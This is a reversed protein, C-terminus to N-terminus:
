LLRAKLRRYVATRGFPCITLVLRRALFDAAPKSVVFSKMPASPVKPIMVSPMNHRPGTTDWKTSGSVATVRLNAGNKGVLTAIACNGFTSTATLATCSISLLGCPGWM